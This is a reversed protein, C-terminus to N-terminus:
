FWDVPLPRVVFTQTPDLLPFALSASIGLTIDDALLRRTREAQQARVALPWAVAGTLGAIFERRRLPLSTRKM